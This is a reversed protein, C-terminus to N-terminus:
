GECKVWMGTPINPKIDEGQYQPIGINMKVYKTKKFLGELM